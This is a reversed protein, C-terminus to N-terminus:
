YKKGNEKHVAKSICININLADDKPNLIILFVTIRSKHHNNYYITVPMLNVTLICTNHSCHLVYKFKHKNYIM